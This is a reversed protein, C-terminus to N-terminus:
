SENARKSNMERRGLGIEALVDETLYIGLVKTM